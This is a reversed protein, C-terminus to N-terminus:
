AQPVGLRHSSLAHVVQTWEPCHVRTFELADYRRRIDEISEWNEPAVHPAYISLGNLKATSYGRRGHELVLPPRPEPPGGVLFDGLARAAAMVRPAGSDRTLNLCLDALDVYPKGIVTQSREFATAIRELTTTDQIGQALAVALVRVYASAMRAQELDLLTLSVRAKPYSECYRRVAFAGFDTPSMPRARRLKLAKLITDYPWGPIPVGVQSALLYRAVPQLQCAYEINAADCADFGVIDIKRADTDCVAQVWEDKRIDNLGIGPADVSQGFAFDYAHGWLILITHHRGANEGIFDDVGETDVRGPEPPGEPLLKAPAAGQREGVLITQVDGGRHTKISIRLRDNSGARQIEEMDAQAADALDANPPVTDVAMYVLVSWFPEQSGAM